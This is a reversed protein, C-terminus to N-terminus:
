QICVRHVLSVLGSKSADPHLLASPESSALAAQLDSNEYDLEGLRELQEFRARAAGGSILTQLLHHYMFSTLNSHM